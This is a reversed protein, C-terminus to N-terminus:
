ESKKKKRGRGLRIKKIAIALGGGWVALGAPWGVALIFAAAGIIPLLLIRVVFRLLPSRSIFRAVAPSWKYYSSVFARGFGNTLLRKDRFNQLLRVAPHLPSNYAATAIFCGSTKGGGGGSGGWDQSYVAKVSTDDNITFTLPNSSGTVDGEWRSFSYTSNQGASFKQTAQITVSSGPDYLTTGPTPDQTPFGSPLITLLKKSSCLQYTQSGGSTDTGKFNTTQLVATTDQVSLAIDVQNVDRAAATLHSDKCFRCSGLYGNPLIRLICFDQYGAGFSKTTGAAVFDGEPTQAVAYGYEGFPGGFTKQWDIDGNGRIKMVLINGNNGNEQSWGTFVHSGDLNSWADIANACLAHSGSLGYSKAWDLGGNAGLKLVLADGASSIGQFTIGALVFGGDNAKRMSFAQEDSANGIAKQWLVSGLSDIKFIMVDYGGSGFSKTSSAVVCGGDSTPEAKPGISPSEAKDMGSGGYAKQWIMNGQPSFKIVWVDYDGAGFSKTYGVVYYGSDSAQVVANAGDDQTGGISKQWEIDGRNNIKVLWADGTSTQGAMLYGGEATQCVSYFVDRFSGGYAKQWQVSGDAALKIVWAGSFSNSWGCVIFGGDSTPLIQVPSDDQQGGYVRAFQAQLGASVIMLLLVGLGIAKKM